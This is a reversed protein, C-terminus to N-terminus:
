AHQKIDLELDCISKANGRQGDCTRASFLKKDPAFKVIIDGYLRYYRVARAFARADTPRRNALPATPYWSDGSPLTLPHVPPPPNPLDLPSTTVIFLAEDCTALRLQRKEVISGRPERRSYDRVGRTM